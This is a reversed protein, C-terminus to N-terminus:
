SLGRAGAPGRGAHGAFGAARRLAEALWDRDLIVTGMECVRIVAPVPSTM